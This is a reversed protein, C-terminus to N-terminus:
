NASLSRSSFTMVQIETPKMFMKHVTCVCSMPPRERIAPMVTPTYQLQAYNEEAVQYM